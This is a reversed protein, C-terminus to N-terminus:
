ALDRMARADGPSTSPPPAPVLVREDVLGSRLTSPSVAYIPGLDCLAHEAYPGATRVLTGAPSGQETDHVVVLKTGTPYSLGTARSADAGM